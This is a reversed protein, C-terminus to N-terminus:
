AKSNTPQHCTAIEQFYFKLRSSSCYLSCHANVITTRYGTTTM